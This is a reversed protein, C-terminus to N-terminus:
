CKWRSDCNLCTVFTTMPEDASRTQMQYYTCQNLKCKRCTFTDTASSINTEFKNKDREMKKQILTEWKEMLMEQHTMGSFVHPYMQGNLVQKAVDSGNKLNYFVTRSRNLYIQVFYPNTWRRLVNKSISERITWNFIGQELDKAFVSLNNEFMNTNFLLQLKTRFNNRFSTPNDISIMKM